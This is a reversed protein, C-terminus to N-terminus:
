TRSPWTSRTSRSQSSRTARPHLALALAGLLLGLGAPPEPVPQAFLVSHELVIPASLASPAGGEGILRGRVEPVPMSSQGAPWFGVGLVSGDALEVQRPFLVPEAATCDGADCLHLTRLAASGTNPDEWRVRWLREAAAPSAIVLAAGLVGALLPARSM